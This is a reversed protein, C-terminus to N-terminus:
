ERSIEHGADHDPAYGVVRGRDMRLSGLRRRPGVVLTQTKVTESGGHIRVHLCRAVLEKGTGTEGTILVDANTSAIDVILRRLAVM